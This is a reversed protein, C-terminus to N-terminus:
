ETERSLSGKRLRRVGQVARANHFLEFVTVDIGHTDYQFRYFVLQYGVDGM